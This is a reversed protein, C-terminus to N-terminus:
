LFATFLVDFNRFIIEVPFVEIWEKAYIMARICFKRYIEVGHM